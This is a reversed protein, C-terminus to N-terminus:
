IGSTEPLIVQRFTHFHAIHIQEAIPRHFCILHKDKLVMGPHLAQLFPVPNFTRTSLTGLVQVFHLHAIGQEILNSRQRECHCLLIPYVLLLGARM